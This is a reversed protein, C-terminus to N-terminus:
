RAVHSGTRKRSSALRPIQFGRRADLPASTAEELDSPVGEVRTSSITGVKAFNSAADRLESMDTVLTTNFCQIPGYDAELASCAANTTPGCSGSTCYTPCFEFWDAVVQKIGNPVTFGDVLATENGRCGYRPSVCARSPRCM